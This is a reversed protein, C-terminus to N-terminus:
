PLELEQQGLPPPSPPLNRVQLSYDDHGWECRKLVANPIKKITLNPYRDPTARFASV